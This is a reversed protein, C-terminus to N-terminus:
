IGYKVKLIIDQMNMEYLKKRKSIRNQEEIWLNWLKTEEAFEPNRSREFVLGYADSSLMQMERMDIRSDPLESLADNTRFIIQETPLITAFSYMWVFTYVLFKVIDKKEHRLVCYILWVFLIIAFLVTYSAFFKEYSFGYYYAYMGMRKAASLLLLLSAFTFVTLIRQVIPHTRKYYLFFLIANIGSLFFLQWFGSKVLAETEEFAAPLMQVWFSEIQTWLFLLYLLLIGGLVIGSVIADLKKESSHEPCTTERTWSLVVHVLCISLIVFVITKMVMEISILDQVFEVIWHMMEGFAPDASSLLPIFVTFALAVFIVLGIAIKFAREHHSKTPCITARIVQLAHKTKGLRIRLYSLWSSGWFVDPYNKTSAIIHYCCFFIPLLFLSILKVYPNEYVSLSLVIIIIPILFNLAHPKYLNRNKGLYHFFILLLVFFISANFGIAGTGKYFFGWCFMVWYASVLAASLVINRQHRIDSM